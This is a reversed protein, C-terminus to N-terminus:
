RLNLWNLKLYKDMHQRRWKKEYVGDPKDIDWSYVMDPDIIGEISYIGIYFRNLSFHVQTM